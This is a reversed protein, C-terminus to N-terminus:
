NNALFTYRVIIGHIWNAGMELPVNEDDNLWITNIRGGLREQAELVLINKIGNVSLTEASKLGACGAGLIIVDYLQIKSAAM